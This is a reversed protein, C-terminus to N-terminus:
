TALTTNTPTTNDANLLGDRVKQQYAVFPALAAAASPKITANVLQNSCGSLLSFALNTVYTEVAQKIVIKNLKSTVTTNFATVTLDINEM